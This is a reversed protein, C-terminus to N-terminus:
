IKIGIRCSFDIRNLRIPISNETIYEDVAKKSGSYHGYDDIILIGCKSLLPFLHTLEHKTSEYFDTDLRLLSIQEPSHQPITDEVKGKIFHFKEKPYGTQYVAKQVQNLSINSWSTTKEDIKMEEFIKSASMNRVINFDDKSPEVMGAFTDYLYIEKDSIGLDLLTKAIIMASGGKWVGCEVFSGLINNKIIYRVSQILEYMREQPTMTYDKCSKIIEIERNGFDIPSIPPYKKIEYGM